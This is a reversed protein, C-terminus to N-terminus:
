EATIKWCKTFGERLSELCNYVGMNKDRKELDKDVLWYDTKM